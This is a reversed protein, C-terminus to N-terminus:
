RQLHKQAPTTTTESASLEHKTLLATTPLPTTPPRTTTAEASMNGYFGSSHAVVCRPGTKLARIWSSPRRAFSVIRKRFAISLARCSCAPFGEGFRFFLAPSPLTGQELFLAASTFMFVSCGGILDPEVDWAISDATRSATGVCGNDAGGSKRSGGVTSM